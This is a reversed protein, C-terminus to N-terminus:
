NSLSDLLEGFAYPWQPLGSSRLDRELHVKSMIFSSFRNALAFGLDILCNRGVAPVM